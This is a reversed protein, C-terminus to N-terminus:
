FIYCLAIGGSSFISHFNSSQLGHLKQYEFQYPNIWFSLMIHKSLIQELSIYPSTIIDKQIDRHDIEGFNAALNLGYAFITRICIHYRGGLFIAASYIKSKENGDIIRISVDAGFEYNYGLGTLGIAINGDTVMVFEMAWRFRKRFHPDLIEQLSAEFFRPRLDEKPNEPISLDIEHSPTNLSNTAQAPSTDTSQSSPSIQSPNESTKSNAWSFSFLCIFLVILGKKKM